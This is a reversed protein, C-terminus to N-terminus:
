LIRTTGLVILDGGNLRQRQVKTNNVFVGNRSGTDQLVYRAGDHVISCHNSSVGPDNLIITNGPARGMTVSSTPGLPFQKGKDAGDVIYLIGTGPSPAPGSPMAYSGAPPPQY